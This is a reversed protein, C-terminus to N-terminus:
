GDPAGEAATLDLTLTLCTGGEPRAGIEFRGGLRAARERLGALGFGGGEAGGALGRGDDAVTLRVGEGAADVAVWARTAAAHRQINTLGEQVARFLAHRRAEDLPPLDPAIRVDVPLQTARTFTEVLEELAEPLPAAPLAAEAPEGHRLAALTRRLDGLGEKLQSRMEDVMGAAREPEQPILRRAGELQVVAVTLRHGLADHMERALRNREEAVALQRSQAAFQQLQDHAAQLEGYLKETRESSDITQKLLYGFLGFFLHGGAASIWGAAAPWGWMLGVNFLTTASFLVIWALAARLPVVLTVVGSLLFFLVFVDDEPQPRLWYVAVVLAVEVALLLHHGLPRDFRPNILLLLLGGFLLLLALLLWFAGTGALGRLLTVSVGLLTLTGAGFILIYTSRPRILGGFPDTRANM